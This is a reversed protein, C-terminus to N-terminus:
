RPVCASDRRPSADSGGWSRGAGGGRGDGRVGRFHAGQLGGAREIARSQALVLDLDICEGTRADFIRPPVAEVGENYPDPDRSLWWRGLGLPVAEFDQHPIKQLGISEPRVLDEFVHRELVELEQDCGWWELQRDENLFVFSPLGDEAVSWGRLNRPVRGLESQELELGFAGRVDSVGPARLIGGLVGHKAISESYLEDAERQEAQMDGTTQLEAQLRALPLVPWSSVGGCVAGLLALGLM